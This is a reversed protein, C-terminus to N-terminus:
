VSGKPALNPIQLTIQTGAGSTSTISIRGNLRDITQKVIYLGLGSGDSKETGRVFMDFVKDLYEKGIGIGNDTFTIEAQQPKILVHIRLFPREARSNMYKIANSLINNFIIEMRLADHVFNEGSVQVEKELLSYNELYKLNQFCQNIVQNFDILLPEIQTRNIKSFNLMSKVFIDLKSVRSEIFDLYTRIQDINTELKILTLLGLISVLPSRLDHSTKYVIQDLEFNREKLEDITHKLEEQHVLLLEEKARLENNQHELQTHLQKRMEEEKVRETVDSFFIAIGDHLPFIRNEFWKDYPIYHEKLTINVKEEVARYYAQYFPQGIGEPFETWIHKGILYEQTRNFIAAAKKNVYTYRWQSDLAVFADAMSELVDQFQIYTRSSLRNLRSQLQLPKFMAMGGVIVGETDVLPFYTIEFFGYETDHKFDITSITSSHGQLAEYFFTQYNESFL